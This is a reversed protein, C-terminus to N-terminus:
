DTQLPPTDLTRVVRFATELLIRNTTFSNIHDPVPGKRISHYGGKTYLLVEFRKAEEENPYARHEISTTGVLECPSLRANMVRGTPTFHKLIDASDAFWEEYGGYWSECITSSRALCEWESLTPLRYESAPDDIGELASLRRCFQKMDDFKASLYPEHASGEDFRIGLEPRVNSYLHTSIAESSFAMTHDLVKLTLPDDHSYRDESSCGYWFVRPARIIAMRLGHETHYWNRSDVIEELWPSQNLWDVKSRYGWRILIERSLEHAGASPHHGYIDALQAVLLEFTQTDIDQKPTYAMCTLMATSRWDDVANRYRDVITELEIGSYPFSCLFYTRPRIDNCFGLVEDVWEWDNLICAALSLRGCWKPNLEEPLAEARPLAARFPEMEKQIPADFREPHNRIADFVDLLESTGVSQLLRLIRAEYQSSQHWLSLLRILRARHTGSSSESLSEFLTDALRPDARELLFIWDNESGRTLAQHFNKSAFNSLDVSNSKSEDPSLISQIFQVKWPETATSPSSALFPELQQKAFSPSSAYSQYWSKLHKPDSSVFWDRLSSEMTPLAKGSLGTETSSLNALPQVDSGNDNRTWSFIGYIVGGVLALSLTAISIQVLGQRGRHIPVQSPHFPVSPVLSIPEGMLWSSLDHSLEDVSRYRDAPNRALCRAIITELPPPLDPRISRAWPAQQDRILSAVTIPDGDFPLKGTLREFLMVGISFIDSRVDVLSSIGSAQEPSMYHPTGIWQGDLTASTTSHFSKAVGFDLIRVKYENSDFPNLSPAAEDSPTEDDSALLDPELSRAEVMVNSPKLDRHIVNAQHAARVGQLLDLFLRVVSADDPLVESPLESLLRGRVLESVLYPIGQWEGVDFIRVINPHSVLSAKAAERAYSVAIARQSYGGPTHLFDIPLKLAVRRRIAVDEAEFVFGHSGKGLLRLVLYRDFHPPLRSADGVAEEPNQNRQRASEATRDGEKDTWTEDPASPYPANSRVTERLEGPQPPVDSPRDIRETQELWEQEILILERLIRMSYEPSGLSAFEQPHPRSGFRFDAEFADCIRERQELYDLARLDSISCDLRNLISNIM